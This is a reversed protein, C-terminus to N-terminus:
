SREYSEIISDILNGIGNGDAATQHFYVFISGVIKVFALEMATRPKNKDSIHFYTKLQADSLNQVITKLLSDYSRLVSRTDLQTTLKKIRDDTVTELIVRTDEGLVMVKAGDRALIVKTNEDVLHEFDRIDM